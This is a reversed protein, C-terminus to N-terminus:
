VERSKRWRYWIVMGAAGLVSIVLVILWVARNSADGTEPSEGFTRETGEGGDTGVYLQMEANGGGFEARFTHNGGQLDDLFDEPLTVITSGESVQYQDSGIVSGGRYLRLFQAFPAEIRWSVDGSGAWEANGGRWDAAEAGQWFGNAHAIVQYRVPSPTATRGGSAGVAPLTKSNIVADSAYYYASERYRVYGKVNENAQYTKTRTGSYSKGDFSYEAGNKSESGSSVSPITVTYIGTSSNFTYTMEFSPPASQSLKEVVLTFTANQKEGSNGDTATVMFPFSGVSKPTGSFDGEKTLTFGSPLNASTYTVAGSGGTAALIASFPTNYKMTFTGGGFGFPSQAISFPDSDQHWAGYGIRLKADSVAIGRESSATLDPFTITGNSTKATLTGGIKWSAGASSAGAIFGIGNPIQNGYQDTVHLIVEKLRGGNEVAGTGQLPLPQKVFVMKASTPDYTPTISLSGSSQSVHTDELKFVLSHTAEARYLRLNATGVGNSFLVPERGGTGDFPKNVWFGDEGSIGIPVAGSLSVEKSGQYGVARNGNSDKVELTVAVNAGATPTTTAASVSIQYFEVAPKTPEAVAGTIEIYKFVKWGDKLAPDRSDSTPFEHLRNGEPEIGPHVNDYTNNWYLFNNSATIHFTGNSGIARAPDNADTVVGAGAIAIISGSELTIKGGDGIGSIGSGNGEATLSGSGSITLISGSPVLLGPKGSGSRLENKGTLILKVEAGSLDFGCAGPTNRVDIKVNDLTITAKVSSAVCIKSITTNTIGSKMSITYDGDKQISLVHNTGDYTYAGAALNGGQTLTISFDGADVAFSDISLGFFMIFFSFVGIFIGSSVKKGM